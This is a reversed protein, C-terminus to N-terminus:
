KQSLMRLSRNGTGCFYAGEGDIMLWVCLYVLGINISTIKGYLLELARLKLICIIYSNCDGSLVLDFNLSIFGIAANSCNCPLKLEIM